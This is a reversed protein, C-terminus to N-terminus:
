PDPPMSCSSRTTFTRPAPHSEGGATIVSAQLMNKCDDTWGALAQRSKMRSDASYNSLTLLDPTIGSGVTYDPHYLVPHGLRAIMQDM